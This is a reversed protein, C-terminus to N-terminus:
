LDNIVVYKLPNNEIYNCRTIYDEENRIIHDNFSAQFVNKGIEKNILRKLVGIIQSLDTPRSSGPVGNSNKECCEDNTLSLLIHIHDSMIVYKHVLVNKYHKLISKIYRDAIEGNSTLQIIYNPTGLDDRGVINCFIRQRDKTCITVFYCGNQSYDYDNLRPNKRNKYEM